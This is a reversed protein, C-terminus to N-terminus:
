PGTYFSASKLCKMIWCKGEEFNPDFFSLCPIGEGEGVETAEQSCVVFMASDKYGNNKWIALDQLNRYIVEASAHGALALALLLSTRTPKM